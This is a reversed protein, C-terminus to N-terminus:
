DTEENSTNDSTWDIIIPTQININSDVTQKPQGFRYGLWTKVAQVDQEKVKIALAMWVEEPALVADMREILAIEDAKPKRGSNERKGGHASM